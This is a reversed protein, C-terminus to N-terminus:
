SYEIINSMLRSLDHAAKHQNEYIKNAKKHTFKIEIHRKYQDYTQVLKQIGKAQKGNPRPTSELQQFVATSDYIIHVKRYENTIAWEIARILAFMEAGLSHLHIVDFDFIIGSDRAVVEEDQLVVFGYSAFSGNQMYSGDVFILPPAEEPAVDGREFYARAQDYGKIRKMKGNPYNQIQRLAQKKDLYLGPRHGRKVVYYVREVPTQSRHQAFYARAEKLGKIKKMKGNPFQYVQARALKRSKYIGPKRGNVVVYYSRNRTRKEM